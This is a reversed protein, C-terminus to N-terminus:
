HCTSPSVTSATIFKIKNPELIVASRSQLLSILLLKSRPLFAIVFRSLMNFLLPTLKSVFTQITLATANETTM